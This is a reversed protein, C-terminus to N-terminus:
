SEEQKEAEVPEEEEPKMLMKEILSDLKERATELANVLPETGQKGHGLQQIHHDFLKDVPTKAQQLLRKELAELQKQLSDFFSDFDNKNSKSAHSDANANSVAPRAPNEPRELATGNEGAPLTNAMTTTTSSQMAVSRQFHLDASYTSVTDFSGIDLAEKMAGSMDGEKMQSMVEDLGVVLSEIDRLEDESLEGAVSFSFSQGSALTIERIDKQFLATGSESRVMGESTYAYASLESFNSSNLTVRDGEKTRLVLDTNSSEHTSVSLEQEYAAAQFGASPNQRFSFDSFPLHNAIDNM